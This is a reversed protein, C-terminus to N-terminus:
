HRAARRRGPGVKVEAGNSIAEGCPNSIRVWYRRAETLPPTTYLPFDAGVPKDTVGVVGEFWQYKLLPTGTAVVSLTATAGSSVSQVTVPQTTIVPRECTGEIAVVVTRSAAEGCSNTLAAWFSTTALLPGVTITAGAAVPNSKDPATGRYWQVTVNDGTFAVALDTSAGAAITRDAPQVTVVPVACSDDVTVIVTRTPVEGCTNTLAAWYSTTEQLSVVQLSAGASLPVTKDPATGRYWQVAIGEAVEGVTIVTSGGKAITRDAPQAAIVPLQCPAVVVLGSVASSGCSNTVRVWYQTVTNVVVALSSGEGVKPAVNSGPNSGKYWEYTLPGNALSTANVSLTWNTGAGTASPTGVVVEACPNVTITAATSDAVPACQGTVRVWVDVTAVPAINPSATTAGAIPNSTDGPRGVYWQYSLPASGTAGVSMKASSGLTVTKNQPQTTISPPSCEQVTVTAVNSSANGCANTVKVWYKTTVAPSLNSLSAATAGGIPNTDDTNSAGIYWQYTFPSTGGAVVSLSTTGGVGITRNPPQTSISAQTCTASLRALRFEATPNDRRWTMSCGSTTCTTYDSATGGSGYTASAADADWPELAGNLGPVIAARMIASNSCPLPAACAVADSGGNKDSHRFGLTHGVEHVMASRLKDQTFSGSAKLGNQTVIDAATITQYQVSEFSHTGGGGYFATAVVGSGSFAGSIVDHPDEEIIRDEGDFVSKVDDAAATASISFNITSGGHNTWRDTGLNAANVFDYDAFNAEVDGTAVSKSPLKASTPSAFYLAEPEVGRVRERIFAKFTDSVRDTEVAENGNVDWGRIEDADRVLLERGKSHVYEFRGLTLQHTTWRGDPKKIMFILYRKGPEYRPAGSVAMWQDGIQGGWEVIDMEAETLDGKLVEDIALRFVTEIDGREAFQAHTALVTGSVIAPSGGILWEDPGVVFTAAHLSAVCVMAALFVFVFRLRIM